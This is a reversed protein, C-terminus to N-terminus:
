KTPAWEDNTMITLEYSMCDYEDGGLNKKTTPVQKPQGIIFQRPANSSFEETVVYLFYKVLEPWVDEITPIRGEVIPIWCGIKHPKM